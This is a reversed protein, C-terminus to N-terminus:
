RKEREKGLKLQLEIVQLRLDNLRGNLTKNEDKLGTLEERVDTLDTQTDFVLLSHMGKKYADALEQETYRKYSSDLYGEHGELMQYIDPSVGAYSMRTEFFKRLTHIHMLHIKTSRDRQNYGSVRLLRDWIKWANTYSFCFLTNDDPNKVNLHQGKKCAAELYATREKLWEEVFIKAESSIYCTRPVDNKAIEWRIRIKAPDQDLDIDEMELSLCEVIRMGSSSLTLFLAKDRTNGHALIRQLQANTPITDNTVARPRKRSVKKWLKRSINIENEEFFLKVCNLRASRTWPTVGPMGQAYSLFDKEYDRGDGFYEDPGRGIFKFYNNLHMRKTKVTNKKEFGALYEEIKDM